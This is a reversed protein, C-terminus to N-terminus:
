PVFLTMVYIAFLVLHVFGNLLNTRGTGFSVISLVLVLLLQVRDEPEIGLYIPRDVWVSIAVMAPMTLGITALASGLATNISRQLDNARAARIATITEPLLLMAVVAASIVADPDRLHLRDLLEEVGAAVGSSVLVIGGLAALLLPIHVVLRRPRAPAPESAEPMFDARHRVTQMFLFAGYLVVTGCMIFSIQFPDVAGMLGAHTNQPLLLCLVSIAIIVSLYGNVGQQRVEQERHRLAGVLLCAGVVGTCVFMVTSLVAERGVGPNNEGNLMMAVLVSVEIVTVSLTLILTGFPQGIRSSIGEAHHVAAFSTGILLVTEIFSLGGTFPVPLVSVALGLALAALPFFYALWIFPM